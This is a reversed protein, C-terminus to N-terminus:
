GLINFIVINKKSILLGNEYISLFYIGAEVEEGFNTVRNWKFYHNGKSLKGMSIEYIDKGTLESIVLKTFPNKNKIKYGIPILYDNNLSLYQNKKFSNMQKISIHKTINSNDDNKSVNYNNEIDKESFLWFPSLVFILLLKLMNTLFHNM